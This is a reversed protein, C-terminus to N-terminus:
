GGQAQRGESRLVWGGFAAAVLALAASVHFVAAYGYADAVRGCLLAGAVGGFGYGITTFLALGRASTQGDFHRNVFDISATHHAAFTLMHLVQCALLVPLMSAYAGTLGFRLAAALMALLWLRGLGVHRLIRGQAYFWGIECLVSVVWVFGILDKGYGLEDLYLSFFVYLGTHAAIMFFSSAYFAGVLPERLRRLVPPAPGSRQPEALDAPLRFASWALVLAIVLCLWAFWGIGAHEFLLGGGWVTLLFGVSAWLRARGYRGWVEAQGSYLRNLRAILMTDSLPILTSTATSLLLLGVVFLGFWPPAFLVAMCLVSLSSCVRVILLRRGTRDGIWGGLYPGYCRTVSNISALLAIAWASFGLHKLYLPLYPNLVGVLGYYIAGYVAFPALADRNPL